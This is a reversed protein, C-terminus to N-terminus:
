SNTKKKVLSLKLTFIKDSNFIHTAIAMTVILFALQYAIGIFIITYNGLYLNPAATFTHTFPIAYLLLMAPTPLSNVDAFMSCLYPILVIFTMPAIMGQASKIDEAMVGLILSISLAILISLFLMIGILIMDAPSLTLGLNAIATKMNGPLNTSLAGGSIGNMYSSFGIMYVLAYGLSVLGAAMMKASLVSTRAIPASLLTELTKDTKENAIASAIMQSAFLVIMYIIIPILMTQSMIFGSISASDVDASKNNIFVKETQKVPNKAFEINKAGNNAFIMDSVLGNMASTLALSTSAGGTSTISFSRITSIVQLTQTKGEEIGKTFGEPIVVYSTLGEKKLLALADKQSTGKEIETLKFGTAKLSSILGDTLATKEEVMIAASGQQKVKDEITKGVFNGIFYFVLVGILLPLMAQLTLLEKIEKLLLIYFRKM